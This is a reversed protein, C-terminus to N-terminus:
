ASSPMRSIDTHSSNLRTSKRDAILKEQVDPLNLVRVLEANLKVLVDNPTKATTQLAYWGPLSFGSVTESVPPVGPLLRTPERYTVGLAKIKGAQAITAVSPAAPCFAAVQDAVVANIAAPATNYPVHVVNLGALENFLGLPM